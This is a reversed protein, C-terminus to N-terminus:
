ALLRTRVWYQFLKATLEIRGDGIVLGLNELDTLAQEQDPSLQREALPECAAAIQQLLELEEARLSHVIQKYVEGIRHARMTTRIAAATGEVRDVTITRRRGQQCADSAFLRSVFPHGGCHDYLLRLAEPQWQIGRWAGLERIMTDSEDPSLAGTYVEHFGMFLPNEGANAPLRSVRNVDPRLAIALLVVGHLEQALARLVALVKRGEAVLHYEAEPDGLPFLKDLEDLIIVFPQSRGRGQWNRILSRLQASSSDDGGGRSHISFRERLEIHLEEAVRLLFPTAAFHDLGECNITVVPVDRFRLQLQHAFSTKGTKRVGFIGVHQGQSMLAPITQLEATRGFFLNPDTVPISEFYPDQRTVYSDKAANVTADVTGRKLAREMIALKMPVVNIRHDAQIRQAEETHQRRREAASTSQILFLLPVAKSRETRRALASTVDNTGNDNLVAYHYTHDRHALLLAHTTLRRRIHYDNAAVFFEKTIALPDRRRRLLVIAVILTGVALGLATGLIVRALATSREWVMRLEKPRLEPDRRQLASRIGEAEARLVDRYWELPYMPCNRAGHFLRFIPCDYGDFRIRVHREADVSAVYRLRSPRYGIWGQGPLRQYVLDPKQERVQWTRVTGDFGASAINRGDPSYALSSVRDEHGSLVAEVEGTEADWIRVTRDMGATAIRGGDPSYALSWVTGRHRLIADAQGTEVDWVRATSGSASAIRRGDPSYAVSTAWDLALAPFVEDHGSLTAEVEGTDVNWIRVTRDVAAAAVHRGDPSYALSWVSDEHGSLIAKVEGTEADWVRVTRGSSSAIHRGDPSYAVALVGGKLRRPIAVEEGTEANWIRVTGDLGLTGAAIRSGDPSYAASYVSGEHGSLIAKVEGTEADWIRVTADDGAFAIRSGDPSYAVSRFSDGRGSPLLAIEEGTEADWIQVTADDGAAAIRSGDPSYAVALVFIGQGSLETEAGTDLVWVSLDGAVAIRSGDPSYAVASVWGEHGRLMATEAGTDADWIRVTADGGASAIRSGDPSYAVASVSDEHGRLMATVAGTDADWIRVTADGGASAIRSGDPSYAVASVSDEHGRLIATVAGTDADWIRVTADGGASAIRSGDPSYAVASVPGEHGRLIATLTGTDVDWIRVTADDGASAIRSGDPSYAVASVSGEHGRLIATLTGTDADWIRVTADDGASAIRSGDPSYAM